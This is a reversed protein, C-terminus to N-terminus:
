TTTQSKKWWCYAHCLCQNRPIFCSCRLSWIKRNGQAINSKLVWFPWIKNGVWSELERSGKKLVPRMWFPFMVRRCPTVDSQSLTSHIKTCTQGWKVVLSHSFGHSALSHDAWRSGDLATKEMIKTAQPAMRQNWTEDCQPLHWSSLEELYGQPFFRPHKHPISRCHFSPHQHKPFVLGVLKM